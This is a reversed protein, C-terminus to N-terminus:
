CSGSVPRGCISGSVTCSTASSATAKVNISCSGSPNPGFSIGGVGSFTLPFALANNKVQFATAFTVSPDGNFTVGNVACASPTVTLTSSDSGNGSSDLTYIFDGSVGITGGNPCPGQYSIPINCSEGNNTVTCGSAPGAQAREVIEGLSTPRGARSADVPSVGAVIAANLAGFLETSVAQAQAQSLSNSHSSGGCTISLLSVLILATLACAIRVTSNRHM